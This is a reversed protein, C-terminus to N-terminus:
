EVKFWDLEFIKKGLYKAGLLTYHGYDYYIKSKSETFFECAKNNDECRYLNRDLLEINNKISFNKLLENNKAVYLNKKYSEYYKNKIDFVEKENPLRKNKLFFYDIITYQGFTTFQAPSNALILRKNNKKIVDKIKYLLNESLTTWNSAVVIVDSNCFKLNNFNLNDFNNCDKLVDFFEFLYIDNGPTNIYGFEYKKFLDKNLNFLNFFDRAFSNGIILIKIKNQSNFGPQGVQDAYINWEAQYFQNDLILNSNLSSNDFREKFGEKSIILLNLGIISFLVMALIPIFLKLEVIKKNRFPKEIFFYSLISVIFIFILFYFTNDNSFFEYKQFVFIPYHWLYLSYSILGIGVFIKSSLIKSIFSSKNLFWILLSIGIIPSITYVSPHFMKDNFFVISHLILVLGIFSFLENLILNKSRYGKKIELYSLISGALVEWIRSTTSFFSSFFSPAEFSLKENIYPPNFNFNGLIQILFINIILLIVFINKILNKFYKFIFLSFIPFLLYFQEEVSLSWTHLFPRFQTELDFYNSQVNYFYYNSTLGISYLLSKAFDVFSSPLLYKWAFPISVLMVFLLVPLIRRARREYFNKFSFNGTLYLERLILSTILYGSIVFFFDVGIFGGQFFSRGFFLFDSHYFIVSLVAIARLGDIEPRYTLKM